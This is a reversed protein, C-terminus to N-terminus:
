DNALTISGEYKQYYAQQAWNASTKGVHELGGGRYLVTGTDKSTFLIIRNNDKHIGIFPYKVPEAVKALPTNITTKM